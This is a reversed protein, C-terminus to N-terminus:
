NLWVRLSYLLGFSGRFICLQHGIQSDLLGPFPPLTTSSTKHCGRATHSLANNQQFIPEPLGAMLPFLHQQLIDHVYRQVTMTGHILILPSPADYAIVIWVMVGATLSTHRQLAFAPNHREDRPRRWLRVRNDDSSLNFRFEDSFVVTYRCRGILCHVRRTCATHHSSKRSWLDAFFARLRTKETWQDVFDSRGLNHVVRRVSWGAEMM